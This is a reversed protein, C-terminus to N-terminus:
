KERRQKYLKVFDMMQSKYFYSCLKHKYRKILKKEEKAGGGPVGAIYIKM